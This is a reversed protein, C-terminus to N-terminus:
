YCEPQRWGFSSSACNCSKTRLSLSIRPNERLVKSSQQSFHYLDLLVFQIYVSDLDHDHRTRRTKM